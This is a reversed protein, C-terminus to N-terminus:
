PMRKIVINALAALDLPLENAGAPLAGLMFMQAIADIYEQDERSHPNDQPMATRVYQYLSAVTRGDWKRLFADRVLVPSKPQDPEGAGNGTRGHCKACNASFVAQGRTAQAVTFVGAYISIQPPAKALADLAATVQQSTVGGVKNKWANRVYTAVAAIDDNTLDPFGPM